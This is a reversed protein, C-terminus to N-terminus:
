ATCKTLFDTKRRKEYTIHPLNDTIKCGSVM